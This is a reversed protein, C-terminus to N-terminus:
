DYFREPDHLELKRLWTEVVFGHQFSGEPFGQSVALEGARHRIVKQLERFQDRRKKRAAPTDASALLSLVATPDGNFIMHEIDRALDDPAGDCRTEQSSRYALGYCKRCGFMEEGPPLYLKQARQGCSNVPCKMWTRYGGFSTSLHELEISYPQLIKFEGNDWLTRFVIVNEADFVPTHVLFYGDRFFSSDFLHFGRGRLLGGRIQAGLDLVVCSEVQRKM